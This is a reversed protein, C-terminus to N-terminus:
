AASANRLYTIPIQGARSRNSSSRRWAIHGRGDHGRSSSTLMGSVTVSCCHLRHSLWILFLFLALRQSAPPSGRIASGIVDHAAVSSQSGCDNMAARSSKTASNSSRSSFPLCTPPSVQLSINLKGLLVRSLEGMWQHALLPGTAPLYTVLKCSLNVSLNCSISGKM